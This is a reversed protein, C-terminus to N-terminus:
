SMSGELLSTRWPRHVKIQPLIAQAAEAMGIDDTALHMTYSACFLYHADDWNNGFKERPIDPRTVWQLSYWLLIRFWRGIATRDPFTQLRSKWARGRFRPNDRILVPYIVEEDRAFKLLEARDRILDQAVRPHRDLIGLKIRECLQIYSEKSQAPGILDELVDDRTLTPEFGSAFHQRVTNTIEGHVIQVPAAIKKPNHESRSVEEWHRCLLLRNEAGSERLADIAKRVFSDPKDSTLAEVLLADPFAISFEGPIGSNKKLSRVVGWDFVVWPRPSDILWQPTDSLVRM